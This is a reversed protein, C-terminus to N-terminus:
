LHQSYPLCKIYEEMRCFDPVDENGEKIYPLYIKDKKMRKQSRKRGFSYRFLEMNLITIFYLGLYQNLEFNKPELIEVHDSGVFAHEQYFCKGDTASDFTIVNGEETYVDSTGFFGNNKNSTTIYAYEGTVIQHQTFSKKSGRVIFVDQIDFEKCKLEKPLERKLKSQNDIHNKQLIELFELENLDKDLLNLNKKTKFIVYERISNLFHKESLQSYDTKSHSQIIWEDNEQISTKLFSTADVYQNPNKIERLLSKKLTNWKNLVDTRGKQKSLVFSNDKLDYFLVEKQCHPTHTEFVAIATHTSANPQFLENPMNIVAKLTHRALISNRLHDEKFYTSLPAIIIVYRSCQDLLKALFQIEKKTPNKKNDQGGYPPNIFGITPNKNELVAKTQEDFFDIHHIQAKGDGRFLMNSISLAFMTPNKEFGILQKEKVQNKLNQKNTLHSNEIINLIRNMGSVLFAGTGCCPDFIVDNYKMEILDTFFETIHRPTLVIGNKVNTVGAYKLFEEYFKGIIDYNTKTQFLPIVHDELERLIEKLLDSKQVDIDDKIAYDFQNKLIDIKDQPIQEKKLVKELTLPVNTIITEPAFTMFHNKFDNQLNEKEFLCIMLSSLIIPRKQSDMSRLIQNIQNSSKSIQNVVEEIDINGFLSLYDHEGENENQYM